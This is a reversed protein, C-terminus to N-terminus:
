SLEMLIWGAAQGRLVSRVRSASVTEMPKTSLLFYSPHPFAGSIGGGVRDPSRCLGQSPQLDPQMGVELGPGAGGLCVDSHHLWGPVSQKAFEKRGVTVIQFLLKCFFVTPFLLKM